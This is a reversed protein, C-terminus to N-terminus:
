DETKPEEKKEEFQIVNKFTHKVSEPSVYEYKDRYTNMYVYHYKGLLKEVAKAEKETYMNFKGGGVEIKYPELRFINANDGDSKMITDFINNMEIRAGHRKVKRIINKCDAISSDQTKMLYVNEIVSKIKKPIFSFPDELRYYNVNDKYSLIKRTQAVLLNIEEKIGIADNLLEQQMQEPTPLYQKSLGLISVLMYKQLLTTYKENEVDLIIYSVPLKFERVRTIRNDINIRRFYKIIDDKEILKSDLKYRNILEVQELFTYDSLYRKIRNEDPLFRKDITGNAIMGLKTSLPLKNIIEDSPMYNESFEGSNLLRTIKRHDLKSLEEQSPMYSVDLKQKNVTKIREDTPLKDLTATIQDSSKGSMKDRLGLEENIFNNYSKM